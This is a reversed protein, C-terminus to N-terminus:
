VHWYRTVKGDHYKNHHSWQVLTSHGESPNFMHVHKVAPGQLESDSDIQARVHEPVHPHDLPVTSYHVDTHTVEDGPGFARTINGQKMPVDPVKFMNEPGAAHIHFDLLKKHDFPQEEIRIHAGVNQEVYGQETDLSESIIQKFDM